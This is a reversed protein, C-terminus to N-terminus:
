TYITYKKHVEWARVGTARQKAKHLNQHRWTMHWLGSTPTVIPFSLSAIHPRPFNGGWLSHSTRSCWHKTEQPNHTFQNKEKRYHIGKQPAHTQTSTTASSLGELSEPSRGCRLLCTLHEMAAHHRALQLAWGATPSSAPVRAKPPTAGSAGGRIADSPM